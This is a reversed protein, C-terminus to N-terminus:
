IVLFFFADTFLSPNNQWHHFKEGVVEKVTLIKHRSKKKRYPILLKILSSKMGTYVRERRPDRDYLFWNM